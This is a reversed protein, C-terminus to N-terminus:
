ADFKELPLNLKLHTNIKKALYIMYGKHPVLGYKHGDYFESSVYDDYIVFDEFLKIQKHLENTWNLEYGQIIMLETDKEQCLKQLLLLKFITNQEEMLPSYLYKYYMQKSEHEDSTSSPWYGKHSFNRSSDTKMVDINYENVEVDLKKWNTLQCIVHTYDNQYLEELLTNVILDNSIAPGSVDKMQAGALRFVKAWTPDKGQFTIGCGSILINSLLM